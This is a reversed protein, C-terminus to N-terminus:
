NQGLYIQYLMMPWKGIIQVDLTKCTTKFGNYVGFIM